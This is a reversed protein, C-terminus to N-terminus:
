GDGIGVEALYGDLQSETMIGIHVVQIIGNADVFYSSPYGRIQYLDQIDAGFDLLITFTLGLEDVFASVIEQSEDNDVALIVLEPSYQEFRAQIAPMEIRCPGCWTAWFNILVAHGRYNSLKVKEGELNVLEFDPALAERVPAIAFGSTDIAGTSGGFNLSACASLISTLLAIYWLIKQRSM